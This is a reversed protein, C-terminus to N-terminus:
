EHKRQHQRVTNAVQEYEPVGHWAIENNTGARFRLTGHSFLRELLSRNTELSRIDSIRYEMSMKKLLGVKGKIREDTVIYRSNSRALVVYGVILGAVVIGGAAADGALGFLLVLAAFGLHKWWVMWGLRRNELVSEGELLAIGETPAQHHIGETNSGVESSMHVMCLSSITQIKQCFANRM